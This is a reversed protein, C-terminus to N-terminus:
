LGKEEIYEIATEIEDEEIGYIKDIYEENVEKIEVKEQSFDAAIADFSRKGKADM